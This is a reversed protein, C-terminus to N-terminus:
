AAGGERPAPAFCLGDGSAFRARALMAVAEDPVTRPPARRYRMGTPDAFIAYRASADGDRVERLILRETTLTPPIEPVAV